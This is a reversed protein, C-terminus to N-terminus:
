RGSAKELGKCLTRALDEMVTKTGSSSAVADGRVSGFSTRRSKASTDLTDMAGVASAGNGSQSSGSGGGGQGSASGGGGQWSGSGGGGQGSGSGKAVQGLGNGGDGEASGSDGGGEASGTGGGGDESRTGGLDESALTTDCTSSRKLRWWEMVDWLGQEFTTCVGQEGRQKTMMNFYGSQGSTYCKDGIRSVIDTMKTWKKRYDEETKNHEEDRLWDVIWMCRNARM